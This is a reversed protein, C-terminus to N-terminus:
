TPNMTFCFHVFSTTHLADRCRFYPTCDVHARVVSHAHGGGFGGYNASGTREGSVDQPIVRRKMLVAASRRAPGRGHRM